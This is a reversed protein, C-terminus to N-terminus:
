TGPRKRHLPRALSPVDDAVHPNRRIREAHADSGGPYPFAADHENWRALIASPAGLAAALDAHTLEGRGHISMRCADCIFDVGAPVGIMARVPEPLARLDTLMDLPVHPYRCAGCTTVRNAPEVTDGKALRRARLEDHL